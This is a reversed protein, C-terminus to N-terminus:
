FRVYASFQYNRPTAQASRTNPLGFNENPQLVIGPAITPQQNTLNRIEGKVGLELPGFVKFDAALAFNVQYWNPLRQSGRAEYFYNDTDGNISFTRQAQYPLGSTFTFSPAATLNMFSFPYTYAAFIKVLHTVDYSLLGRRNTGLIDVCDGTISPVLIVSPDNVSVVAPVTCPTGAYDFLQSTFIAEHNGEARSLTYNALLQWNRSFRKEATLEIAKYYRKLEGDTYNQPTTIKLNDPNIFRADDILNTWKRYIGRIGVAMTNGIQQQLAINFEQVNAPMLDENIPQSNGGSRIAQNFVWQSGDWLYQDFNVQQPVGSYISDIISQVLFDRYQGYAVSALTKGNGLIDYSATLRPSVTTADVVAQALDSEGTQVDVRVGLNFSLRDTAEFRDLFYIGYIKGNSVSPEPPTGQLWVDGQQLLMTRTSADFGSVFFTQNGPYVFSSESEIKQYDVGLKFNHARGAIQSYINAALNAQDRPREVSGDFPNGNYYLQDELNYVPSDGFTGSPFENAVTIGGRQQAYTAEVSLMSGFVGTYRAQWVCAWSCNNDQDQATLAQLEGSPLGFESWYNRIIGTFPAAQASFVLAHAPTIQGTLKGQWASYVRNATYSQGSLPPPNVDSVAVQAPPTFQPNREYAGFFWIHDKWVPGGLTFLYDYVNKDLKTRAFPTGDPNAPTPPSSGKNQSDWNDNTALVRASGHFTNTGSKTIVNIVAGQSRGYEASIASNSVVVEQIADFNSNVGFTGTTPDTTDVGDFMYLNSSDIAGHSNTNGDADADNVGTALEVVNQYARPIALQDALGFEVRTTDSVNTKDVLPLEASATVTEATAAIKLIPAVTTTKEATVVNGSSEFSEFGSLTVKVAFAGPPLLAFQFAGSSDTTASRTFGKELSTLEVTAGPLVAGSEDRVRGSLTGFLSGDALLPAAAAVLGILVWLWKRHRLGNAM